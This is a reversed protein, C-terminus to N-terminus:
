EFHKKRRATIYHKRNEKRVKCCKNLPMPDWSWDKDLSIGQRRERFIAIFTKSTGKKNRFSQKFPVFRWKISTYTSQFVELLLM